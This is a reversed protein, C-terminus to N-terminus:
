RSAGPLSASWFGITRARRRGTLLARCAAPPHGRRRIKPRFLPGGPAPPGCSAPQLRESLESIVGYLLLNISCPSTDDFSPLHDPRGNRYVTSEAPGSIEGARAALADLSRLPLGPRCAFRLGRLAAPLRGRTRPRDFRGPVSCPGGAPAPRRGGRFSPSVDPGPLSGARAALPRRSVPLRLLCAPMILQVNRASRSGEGALRNEAVMVRVNAVITRRISFRNRGGSRIEHFGSISWEECSSSAESKRRCTPSVRGSLCSWSRTM